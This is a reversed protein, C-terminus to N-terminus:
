LKAKNGSGSKRQGREGRKLMASLWSRAPEPADPIVRRLLATLPDDATRTTRKATKSITTM